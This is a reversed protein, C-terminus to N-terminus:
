WCIGLHGPKWGRLNAIARSALLLSCRREQGRESQLAPDPCQHEGGVVLPQLDDVLQDRGTRRDVLGIGLPPPRRQMYRRAVAPQGADAPQEAV